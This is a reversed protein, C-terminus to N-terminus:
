KVNLDSIIYIKINDIIYAKFLQIKSIFEKPDLGFYGYSLKQASKSMLM